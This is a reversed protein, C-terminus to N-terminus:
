NVAVTRQVTGVASSLRCRPRQLQIDRAKIDEAKDNGLVYKHWIMDVHEFALVSVWFCQLLWLQYARMLFFHGPLRKLM